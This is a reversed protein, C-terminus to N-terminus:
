HQPKGYLGKGYAYVRLGVRIEAQKVGQVERRRELRTGDELRVIVSSERVEIIEGPQETEVKYTLPLM